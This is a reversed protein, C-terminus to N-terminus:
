WTVAIPIGALVDNVIEHRSIQPISYARYEGNLSVRIVMENPSFQAGAEGASLYSPDLIAPKSDMSIVSIM